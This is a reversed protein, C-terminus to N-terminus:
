GIDPGLKTDPAHTPLSHTLVIERKRGIMSNSRSIPYFSIGLSENPDLLFAKADLQVQTDSVPFQCVTVTRHDEPM